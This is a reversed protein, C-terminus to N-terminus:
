PDLKEIAYAYHVSVITGEEADPCIFNSVPRINKKIAVLYYNKQVERVPAREVRCLEKLVPPAFRYSGDNKEIYANHFELYYTRITDLSHPNTHLIKATEFIRRWAPPFIRELTEWPIPLEKKLATKLLTFEDQTIHGRALTIGACPFAYKLFLIQAQKESAM